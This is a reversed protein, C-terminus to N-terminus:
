CLTGKNEEKVLSIDELPLEIAPDDKCLIDLRVPVFVFHSGDRFTPREVHEMGTHAVSILGCVQLPLEFRVLILVRRDKSV